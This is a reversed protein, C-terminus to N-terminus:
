RLRGAGDITEVTEPAVKKLCLKCFDRGLAALVVDTGKSDVDLVLFHIVTNNGEKISWPFLGRNGSYRPKERPSAVPLGNPHLPNM